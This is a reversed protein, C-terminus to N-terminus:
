SEIAEVHRRAILWYATFIAAIGAPWQWTHRNGADVAIFLVLAASFATLSAAYGKWHVVRVWRVPGLFSVSQFWIERKAEM